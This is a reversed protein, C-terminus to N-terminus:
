SPRVMSVFAGPVGSAARAAGARDAFVGFTTPGSGTVLAAAAGADRLAELPRELQPRLSLM